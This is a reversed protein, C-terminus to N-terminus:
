FTYLTLSFHTHKRSALNLLSQIYCIGTGNAKKVMLGTYESGIKRWIKQEM